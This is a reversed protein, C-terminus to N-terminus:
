PMIFQAVADDTSQRPEACVLRRIITDSDNLRDLEKKIRGLFNKFSREDMTDSKDYYSRFEDAAYSFIRRKESEWKNKAEILKQNLSEESQIIKTKAAADVLQKERKMQDNMSEIKGELKMKERKLQIITMKLEDRKKLSSALEQSVKVLDIRHEECQKKIATVAEEHSTILQDKEAKNKAIIQEIENDKTQKLQKMADDKQSNTKREQEIVNKLMLLSKEGNLVTEEIKEKESQLRKIQSQLEETTTTLKVSSEQLKNEFEERLIQEKEECSAKLERIQNKAVQVERKLKTNQVSLDNCKAKLKDKSTTIDSLDSNLASIEDSTAQKMSHLAKKLSRCQKSRVKIAKSQTDLATRISNVQAHLDVPDTNGFEQTFHDIFSSCQANRRKENEYLQILEKIKQITVQSVKELTFEEKTMSQIQLAICLDIIFQNFTDKMSQLEQNLYSSQEDKQNLLSTFHRNIAKYINNLKSTPQLLPNSIIKQIDSTLDKDFENFSWAYPPIIDDATLVPKERLQMKTDSLEDSLSSIKQQSEELDDKISQLQSQLNNENRRLGENEVSLEHIQNNLSRITQELRDNQLKMRRALKQDEHRPKPDPKSHLTQRLTEVELITQDHTTQLAEFKNKYNDAAIEFKNNESELNKIRSFLKKCKETSEQLKQTLDSNTLKLSEIEEHYGILHNGGEDNKKNDVNPKSNDQTELSVSEQAIKQLRFDKLESKLNQMEAKLSNIKEELKKNLENADSIKLLYEEKVQKIKAEYEQAILKQKKEKESMDHKLFNIESQLSENQKKTIKLKQRNIKFKKQFIIIQENFNNNFYPAPQAETQPVPPPPITSTNSVLDILADIDTITLCFFQSSCHLLREVKSRLMKNHLDSKEKALSVQELKNKLEEVKKEYEKKTRSLEKEREAAEHQRQQSFAIKEENFKSEIEDNANQSIELKRKLEDKESQIARLAKALKQNKHHIADMNKTVQIAQDFQARIVDIEKQLKEKEEILKCGEQEALLQTEIDSEDPTTAKSLSHESEYSSDM